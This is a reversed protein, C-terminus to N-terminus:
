NTATAHLGIEPRVVDSLQQFSAPKILYGTQKNIAGCAGVLCNLASGFATPDLRYANLAAVNVADCQLTLIDKCAEGQSQQVNVYSNYAWQCICWNGIKCTAPSTGTGDPMCETQTEECWDPQGTKTCFDPKMHICIHHSGQDDQIEQCHGDRTFGTIAGGPKSCTALPEGYVNLHQALALELTGLTALVLMPLQLM